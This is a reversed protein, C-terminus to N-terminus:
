TFLWYAICMAMTSWCACEEVVEYHFIRFTRGNVEISLCDRFLPCRAVGYLLCNQAHHWAYAGTDGVKPVSSIMGIKEIEM